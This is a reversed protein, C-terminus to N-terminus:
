GFIVMDWDCLVENGKRRRFNWLPCRPLIGVPDLAPFIPSSNRPARVALGFIPTRARTRIFFLIGGAAAAATPSSLLPAKAACLPAVSFLPTISMEFSARTHIYDRRLFLPPNIHTFTHPGPIYILKQLNKPLTRYQYIHLTRKM